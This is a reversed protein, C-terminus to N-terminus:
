FSLIAPVMEESLFKVLILIVIGMALMYIFGGTHPIGPFIANGFFSICWYTTLVLIMLDIM